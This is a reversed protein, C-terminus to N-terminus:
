SQPSSLQHSRKTLLAQTQSSSRPQTVSRTHNDTQHAMPQQHPSSRPCLYWTSLTDRAGKAQKLSQHNVLSLKRNGRKSHFRITVSTKVINIRSLETVRAASNLTGISQHHMKKRHRYQSLLKPHSGMMTTSTSERLFLQDL